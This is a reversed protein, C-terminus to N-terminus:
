LQWPGNNYRYRIDYTAITTGLAYFGTWNIPFSDTVTATPKL